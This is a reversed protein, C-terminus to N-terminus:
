FRSFDLIESVEEAFWPLKDMTLGYQMTICLTLM